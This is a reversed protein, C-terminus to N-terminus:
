KVLCTGPSQFISRSNPWLPKKTDLLIEGDVLISSTFSSDSSAGSTSDAHSSFFFRSPPGYCCISDVSRLSLHNPPLGIIFQAQTRESKGRRADRRM